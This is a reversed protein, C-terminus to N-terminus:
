FCEELHCRPEQHMHTSYRVPPVSNAPMSCDRDSDLNGSLYIAPNKIGSAPFPGLNAEERVGAAGAAGLGRRPDFGSSGIPIKASSSFELM